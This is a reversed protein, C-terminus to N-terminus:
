EEGEKPAGMGAEELAKRLGEGLKETDMRLEMVNEGPHDAKITINANIRITGDEKEAIEKEAERLMREKRAAEERTYRIEDRLKRIEEEQYAVLSRDDMPEGPRTFEMRKRAKWYLETRFDTMKEAGKREDQMDLVGPVRCRGLRLLASQIDTGCINDGRM